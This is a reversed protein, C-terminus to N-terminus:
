KWKFNMQSLTLSMHVHYHVKLKWLIHSIEQRTLSRDAEWLSQGMCNIAKVNCGPILLKYDSPCANICYTGSAVSGPMWKQVVPRIAWGIFDGQNGTEEVLGLHQVQKTSTSRWVEGPIATSMVNFFHWTWYRTPCVTCLLWYHLHCYMDHGEKNQVRLKPTNRVM